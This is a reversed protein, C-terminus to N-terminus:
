KLRRMIIRTICQVLERDQTLVFDVGDDAPGVPESHRMCLVMSLHPGTVVLTTEGNLPDAGDLLETHVLHTAPAPIASLLGVYAAHPRLAALRPVWSSREGPGNPACVVVTYPGSGVVQALVHDIVSGVMRPSGRRIPTRASALAFPTGGPRHLGPQPPRLRASRDVPRGILADLPGPRGFLWGQGWRAGMALANPVDRETEVGEALVTAGTREAFASVTAATAATDPTYPSRLLRMDLKVVEPELLPMFALSLPDAGVDDLAVSNGFGHVEDAVRLLAAPTSSLARETFELVIRFHRSNRVAARLEPSSQRPLAAPEANVFVLPPVLPGPVQAAELARTVCLQDLDMLLDAAVAAPFLADPFELASGAPGRALAEVGVIKRTSLDVIPQFVPFIAREALIRILLSSADTGHRPAAQSAGPATRRQLAM